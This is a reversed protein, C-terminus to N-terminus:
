ALLSDFAAQTATIATLTAPNPTSGGTNVWTTLTTCLMDLASKLDTSGNAVSWKGTATSELVAGSVTQIKITGNTDLTVTIDGFRIQPKTANYDTIRNALSFFGVIALGDSLSHMRSSAPAGTDGTMQWNEIDRDSFLVLCTDGKAIPFRISAGGGSLVFVPVDTLLPYDILTPTQQLASGLAQPTNYVVRKTAIQVTVTQNTANFSQVTGIQHCNLSAFIEDRHMNLLTRIDPSPIPGNASM